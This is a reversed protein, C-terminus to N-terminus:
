DIRDNKTEHQGSFDFNKSNKSIAMIEEDMFILQARKLAASEPGQTSRNVKRTNLFMCAKNNSPWLAVSLITHLQGLKAKSKQVVQWELVSILRHGMLDKDNQERREFTCTSKLQGCMM